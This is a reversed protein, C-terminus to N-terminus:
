DDLALGLWVSLHDVWNCNRCERTSDRTQGCIQTPSWVGPYLGGPTPPTSGVRTEHSLLSQSKPQHSGTSLPSWTKDPRFRKDCATKHRTLKGKMNDEFPCQPCQHLFPARELKGRVGHQSLMHVLVEQPLKTDYPCFNCRYYALRIHPSELHSALVLESETKYSCIKCKKMDLRFDKNNEKSAELNKKLSMIAHMVGASKDRQSKRIQQKLLDTQVAEQVLNMGLDMFFKGLPSEFYNDGGKKSSLDEVVEDEEEEDSSSEASSKNEEPDFEPDEERRKRREEAAEEKKKRKDEDARFDAFTEKPPKEYVYPVIFSPAEVVFTDDTLNPDNLEGSSSKKLSSSSSASSKPAHSITVGAPLNPLASSSGSKGALISETDILVVNNGGSSAKSSDKRNSAAIKHLVQVDDITVVKKTQPAAHLLKKKSSAAALPDSEEDEEVEMVDSDDKIEEVDNLEDEDVEEEEDLLAEERVEIPCKRRSSGNLKSLDGNGHSSSEKVTSSSTKEEEIVDVDDVIMMSSEEDEDMVADEKGDGKLSEEEELVDDEPSKKREELLDDEEKQPSSGNKVVEPIMESAPDKDQSM